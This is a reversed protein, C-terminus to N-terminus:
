SLRDQELLDLSQFMWSRGQRTHRYGPEAPSQFLNSNNKHSRNFFLIRMYIYPVRTATWIGWVSMSVNSSRNM